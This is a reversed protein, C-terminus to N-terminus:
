NSDPRRLLIWCLAFLALGVGVAYSGLLPWL